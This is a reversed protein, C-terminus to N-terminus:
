CSAVCLSNMISSSKYISTSVDFSTKGKNATKDALYAHYEELWEEPTPVEGKIIM